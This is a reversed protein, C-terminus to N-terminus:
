VSEKPDDGVIVEGLAILASSMPKGLWPVWIPNAYLSGPVDVGNVVAAFSRAEIMLSSIEFALGSPVPGTAWIPPELGTWTLTCSWDDTDVQYRVSGSEALPSREFWAERIVASEMEQRWAGPAFRPICADVLPRNDSWVTVVSEPEATSDCVFLVHGTQGSPSHSFCFLSFYFAPREVTPDTKLGGVLHDMVHDVSAYVAAVSM